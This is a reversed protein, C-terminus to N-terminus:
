VFNQFKTHRTAPHKTYEPHELHEVNKQDPESFFIGLFFREEAGRKTWV